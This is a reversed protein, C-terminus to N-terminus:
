GKLFNGIEGLGEGKYDSKEVAKMFQVLKAPSMNKGLVRVLIFGKDDSDGYIIVEDIADDDGLYRVSAKGYKTNMKMLETFKGNKLIATINAKENQFEMLNDETIKFALINLKKLSGLAERQDETLDAKEMNLLSVPLDVSLFNPNDANDVFYEQLSQTSSCASMVFILLIAWVLKEVRTKM